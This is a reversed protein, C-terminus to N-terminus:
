KLYVEGFDSAFKREEILGCNMCKIKQDLRETSGGCSSCTAYIVGSENATISLHIISNKYSTVKAKVIDGFKLITTKRGSKRPSRGSRLVLMGTFGSSSRRDNIYYIRINAINGQVAEVQGIVNDGVMPVNKVKRSPEIKIERRRIDYDAIGLRSARITDKDIYAGESANFEEIVALRDGPITKKMKGINSQNATLIM